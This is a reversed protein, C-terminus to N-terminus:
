KRRKRAITNFWKCTTNNVGEKPIHYWEDLIHFENLYHSLSEKDMYTFTRDTEKRVGQGDKFFIAIVGDPKLAKWFRHLVDPLESPLVHLLSASAWIGDFLESFEMEQFYGQLVPIHLQEKVHKVMEVSADLGLVDYGRKTFAVADRGSGCGADLIKAGPALHKLFRNQCGKMEVHFTREIYSQANKNYYGVSSREELTLLEETKM